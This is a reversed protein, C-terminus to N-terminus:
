VQLWTPVVQREFLASLMVVVVVVVPRLMMLDWCPCVRRMARQISVRWVLALSLSVEARCVRAECSGVQRLV